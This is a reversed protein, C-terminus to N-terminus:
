PCAGLPNVQLVSTLKGDHLIPILNSSMDGNRNFGFSGLIGDVVKVKLLERTVSARTGSSHAVAALLVEAAQAANAAYASVQGGPQTLSFAHVFQVGAPPLQAAPDFVGEAAIYIGPPVPPTGLGADGILTIGPM